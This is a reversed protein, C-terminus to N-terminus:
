SKLSGRLIFCLGALILCGGIFIPPPIKESFLLWAFFSALLPEGLPVSAVASPSTYKVVYSLLSHGFITPIFALSILLTFEFINFSFVPLRFLISILLLTCAAYFYIARCYITISTNQRIREALIFVIAIFLSGALALFNGTSNTGCLGLGKWNIIIIGFFAVLIGFFIKTSVKRKLFVTEIFITFMPAVTGLLTANAITTLKVASFFCAFHFGLFIGALIISKKHESPLGKQPRFLSYVGFIASALAMRWFAIVIAPLAPLYRVLISSSSVSVLAM